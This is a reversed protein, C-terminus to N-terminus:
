DFRTSALRSRRPANPPKPSRHGRWRAPNEGSVNNMVKEASWIREIRGRLRSATETKQNWLDQLLQVVLSTDISRVPTTFDPGYDELSQRWQDAQAENKWGNKHSEIFANVAEGWTRDPKSKAERKEQLPDCGDSRAKRAQAARERAEALTVSSASGLGMDRLRGQSRYRYIWSASTGTKGVVLYLGGGDAHFGPGATAVKRASLRHLGRTSGMGRGM